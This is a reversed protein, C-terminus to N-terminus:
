RTRQWSASVDNSSMPSLRRLNSGDSNMVYLGGAFDKYRTFVIKTGDPSWEPDEDSIGRPPNTLRRLGTGDAHVRYISGTVDPASPLAGSFVLDRGDPSWNPRGRDRNGSLKLAHAGTGNANIIFIQSKQTNPKFSLFAIRRGDPSWDPEEADLTRPTIRHLRGSSVNLAYIRYFAVRVFRNFALM